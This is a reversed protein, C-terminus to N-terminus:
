EIILKYKQEENNSNIEIFYVGNSEKIEFQYNPININEDKYILQGTVNHVKISVNKLSGLDINVLGQSPNPYIAVQKFLPNEIISVTTITVCTSTDTCGNETLEVAYSGNATATYTQGIEGSIIANSNGCDLWQYMAGINNASVITGTTTITLDSVSNITLDLTVLSDCGNAAGNPFIFTATNNNATYTNGDIWTYSNCETRTDTGTPLPNVTITFTQPLGTCGSLVPTVTVTSVIPTAGANLGTFSTINGTGSAALGTTTNTNTWNYVTSWDNGTFTVTTTATNACIVQNVPDNVTPTPNVTVTTTATNTCGAANTVTVTYTGSMGTTSSTITPNQTANTYSLPGSWLYSAGGTSNLQITQGACYAGTNTATALPPTICSKFVVGLDNTGGAVTMGYLFTGDSILSGNPIRGNTAGAFDLLNSYGTGDPKIKFITGSNFTGGDRTMGYLFTGDSILSGFPWKGNISAFDLLKVYGTGNPMIKFITGGNNTGGWTTMGYLFTGDSILSGEPKSGNTTGVFDLLKIYGTGDPMIKFITGLDNTGGMKTMGYLFTGDSILSGFPESGNTAGAFDLLKVYGTGDPMIKFITGLYNTGGHQTTGYLFTGDSILSGRATAGITTGDFDLLKIYGTGDPKIKFITGRNITGGSQTTGYLFTGDSILSGHPYKGNTAGAFDLLKVYGTGDPMIKFITGLDNTGGTLTTGYLFTGDSMLSGWPSDGNTAGAFNLLTTTQAYSSTSILM